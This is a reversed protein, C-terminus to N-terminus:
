GPLNMRKALGPWRPTSRFFPSLNHVFPMYRHEIAREAWKAAEEIEGCLGYFAVLGISTTQEPGNKLQQQLPEASDTKGTQLLLAALQGSTLTSWPMLAHAKESLRLAEELRGQQAYFLGLTGLAHPYNPNIELITRLESEAQEIRGALRLGRAYHHRYLLNLPDGELGREMADIAELTRGVPLLYHNGYWFLVDRSVPESAMARRWHREAGSWDYEYEGTCVGMMAHAEPLDPDVSLAQQEAAIASPIVERGGKFGLNVQM